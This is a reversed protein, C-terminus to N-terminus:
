AGSDDEGHRGLIAFGIFLLAGIYAVWQLADAFRNLLGTLGGFFQNLDSQSFFGLTTSLGRVALLILVLSVGAKM